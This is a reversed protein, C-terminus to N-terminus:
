PRIVVMLFLISAILTGAFIIAPAPNNEDVSERKLDEFSEFGLMWLALSVLVYSVVAVIPGWFFIMSIISPLVNAFSKWSDPAVFYSIAQGALIVFTMLIIPRTSRNKM